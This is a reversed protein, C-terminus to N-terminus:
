RILISSSKKQVVRRGLASVAEFGEAGGTVDGRGGCLLKAAVKDSTAVEGRRDRRWNRALTSLNSRDRVLREDLACRWVCEFDVPLDHLVDLVTVPRDDVNELNFARALM